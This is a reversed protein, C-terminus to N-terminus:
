DLDPAPCKLPITPPNDDEDEVGLVSLVAAPQDVKFHQAPAFYTSSTPPCQQM